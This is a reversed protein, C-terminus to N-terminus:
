RLLRAAPATFYREMVSKSPISTPEVPAFAMRMLASPRTSALAVVSYGSRMGCGPHVSCSGSAHHFAVVVLTRRTKSFERIDLESTVPM